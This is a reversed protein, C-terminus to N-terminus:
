LNYKQREAMHGAERQMMSGAQMVNLLAELVIAVCPSM